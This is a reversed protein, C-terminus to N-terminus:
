GKTAAGSSAYAQSDMSKGAFPNIDHSKAQGGKTGHGNVVAQHKVGGSVAELADDSLESDPQSASTSETAIEADTKTTDAPKNTM